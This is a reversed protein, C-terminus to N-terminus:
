IVNRETTWRAVDRLASMPLLVLEVVMGSATLFECEELTIEDGDAMNHKELVQLTRELISQSNIIVSAAADVLAPLGNDTTTVNWNADSLTDYGVLRMAKGTSFSQLDKTWTKSEEIGVVELTM